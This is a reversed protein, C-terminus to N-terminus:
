SGEEEEEDGKNNGHKVEEGDEDEDEGGGEDQSKHALGGEPDEEDDIIGTLTTATFDPPPTDADSDMEACDPYEPGTVTWAEAGRLDTITGKLGGAAYLGSNKIWANMEKVATEWCGAINVVRIVGTGGYFSMRLHLRLIILGRGPYYM